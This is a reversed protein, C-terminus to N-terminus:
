LTTGNLKMINDAPLAYIECSEEDEEWNDEFNMEDEHAFKGTEMLTWVGRGLNSDM